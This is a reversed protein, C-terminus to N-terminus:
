AARGASPLASAARGAVIREVLELDALKDVDIAAEVTDLVVAEVRVGVVRSAEDTAQQLSLRGLLYAILPRWGFRRVLRWPKKRDEEVTRWFDVLRYGAITHILFLNCGSYREGAFRFATREAEPYRTRLRDASAVAVVVDAAPRADCAALFQEILDTTLLAHDATTILLPVPTSLAERAVLVSRVPSEAATISSLRNTKAIDDVAPVGDLLSAQEIVIAIRNIAASAAVATVVRSIMPEGAVPALCKHTVGAHRAVPDESGRSGALIVATITPLGSPM